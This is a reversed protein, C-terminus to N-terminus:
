ERRETRRATRRWENWLIRPFLIGDVLYRKVFRRPNSLVRYAWELGFRRMWLPARKVEGAEFDITAGVCLAVKARLRGSHKGLFFEQKPTGLGLILIEPHADGVLDVMKRQEESNKEFGFPPSYVGVTKIVPCREAVRVAAKEAVGPAAGLWYVRLEKNAAQAREFLRPVFDSGSVTEPFDWGLLNLAHLVPKGDVLVLSAARYIQRFRSDTELKVLHDVNPTVVYRCNEEKEGTWALVRSVAEEMTLPDLLIGFAEVRESM